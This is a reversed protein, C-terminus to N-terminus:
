TLGARRRGTGRSNGDSAQSHRSAQRHRRKGALTALPSAPADPRIGTWRAAGVTPPRRRSRKGATPEPAAASGASARASGCGHRVQLQRLGGRNSSCRRARVARTRQAVAAAVAAVASRRHLRGQCVDHDDDGEGGRYGRRGERGGAPDAHGGHRVVAGRGGPGEGDAGALGGPGAAVPVGVHGRLEAAGGLLEGREALERGPGRLHGPAGGPGPVAGVAADREPGAGGGPGARGSEGGIVTADAGSTLYLTRYANAVGAHREEMDEVLELFQERTVAPIGKVVLNPTAGHEFFKIKHETALRDGQM